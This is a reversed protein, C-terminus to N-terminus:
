YIILNSMFAKSGVSLHTYQRYLANVLSNVLKM